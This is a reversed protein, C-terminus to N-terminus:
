SPSHVFGPSISAVIGRTQPSKENHLSPYWDAFTPQLEGNLERTRVQSLLHAGRRSWRMQQRKVMRKSIVQNVTSEATSTSVREGNRRHEGYNPILDANNQIYTHFEEVAKRFKYSDDRHESAAVLDELEEVSELARIVNGHWLFWKMRDLESTAKASLSQEEGESEEM